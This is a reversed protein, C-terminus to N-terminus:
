PCPASVTAAASGRPQKLRGAPGRRLGHMEALMRCAQADGGNAAVHRELVAIAADLEGQTRLMAAHEVDNSTGGAAPRPAKLTGAAAGQRTLTIRSLKGLYLSRNRDRQITRLADAAQAHDPQLALVGLFHQSATDIEGRKWAQQARQMREPVAAQIQRRTEALRERYEGASPRLAALIEWSQEAEALRGERQQVRARERLRQEFATAGPAAPLPARAEQPGPPDAPPAMPSVACGAALVAVAVLAVPSAFSSHNM